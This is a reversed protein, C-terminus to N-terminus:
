EAPDYGMRLRLRETQDFAWSPLRIDPLDVGEARLIEWAESPSEAVRGWVEAEGPVTTDCVQGTVSGQESTEPAIALAERLEALDRLTECAANLELRTVAVIAALGWVPVAEAGTAAVARDAGAALRDEIGSFVSVIMEDQAMEEGRFTVVPDRAAALDAEAQELAARAEAEASVAAMRARREAELETAVADRVLDRSSGTAAVLSSVEDFVSRSTVTAVNLWVAAVFLIMFFWRWVRRGIWRILSASTLVTRSRHDRGAM